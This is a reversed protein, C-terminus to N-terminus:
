GVPGCSWHFRFEVPGALSESARKYFTFVFDREVHEIDLETTNTMCGLILTNLQFVQM